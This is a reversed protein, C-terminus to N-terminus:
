RFLRLVVQRVPLRGGRVRALRELPCALRGGLHDVQLEAVQEPRPLVHRQRDPREVLGREVVAEAEVTRRNAAPLPDRLRVHQQHRVGSRRDEIRKGLRRRQREDALDGIRDGLLGVRLIWAADRLLCLLVEARRADRVRCEHAGLALEEDEVLDRVLEARVAGVVRDIRSFTVPVGALGPEAVGHALLLAVERGRRVVRQM